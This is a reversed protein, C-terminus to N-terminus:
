EELWKINKLEDEDIVRANTNGQGHATKIHRDMAAQIKNQEIEDLDEYPRLGHEEIIDRGCYKCVAPTLEIRLRRTNLKDVRKEVVVFQKKSGQKDEETLEPFLDEDLDSLVRTGTTAEKQKVNKLTTRAFLKIQQATVKGVGNIATLQSYNADAVEELTKFNNKIAEDMPGTVNQVDKFSFMGIPHGEKSISEKEKTSM